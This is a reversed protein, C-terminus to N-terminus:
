RLAGVYDRFERELQPLEIGLNRRLIEEFEEKTGRGSLEAVLYEDFTKRTAPSRQRLFQVFAWSEAYYLQALRRAEEPDRAQSHEFWKWFEEVTMGTLVHLSIFDRQGEGASQMAQKVSALRSRNVSPEFQLENGVSQFSEFYTGLGEQFWYATSPRRRGGTRLLTYYDVLQHVGEHFLVQDSVNVDDYVVVRRRGYEYIGQIQAALKKGDRRLCYDDFSQRSRLVVVVLVGEIDPLELAAFERRFAAHVKDLRRGYDEIMDRHYHDSREVFLLYPSDKLAHNWFGSGFEQALEDKAREVPSVIAGAVRENGPAPAPAQTAPSAPAPAPEPAKSSRMCLFLVAAFLLGAALAGCVRLARRSRPAGPRTLFRQTSPVALVATCGGCRLQTGTTVGTVNYRKGCFPCRVHRLSM